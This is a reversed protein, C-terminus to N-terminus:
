TKGGIGHTHEAFRAGRLFAQVFQDAHPQRCYGDIIQEDTLPARQPAQTAASVRLREALYHDCTGRLRCVDPTFCAECETVVAVVPERAPQAELAARLAAIVDTRCSRVAILAELAAKAAEVLASM